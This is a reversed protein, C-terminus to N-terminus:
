HFYLTMRVIGRSPSCPSRIKMPVCYIMYSIVHGFRLTVKPIVPHRQSQERFNAAIAVGLLQLLTLDVYRLGPDLERDFGRNDVAVRPNQEALLAELYLLRYSKVFISM